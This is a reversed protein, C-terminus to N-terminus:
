LDIFKSHSKVKKNEDFYFTSKIRRAKLIEPLWYKDDDWMREYPIKEFSFWKWLMEDSNTPNGQWKRILYVHVVQNFQKQSEPFIFTFEGAKILDELKIVLGAEEQTERIATQEITKDTEKFKGGPGNYNGGGFLHKTKMGLLIEKAKENVIVGLTAQTLISM